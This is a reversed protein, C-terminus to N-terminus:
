NERCIRCIDAGFKEAKSPGIGSISELDDRTLPCEHAIARLTKDGLICFAPVNMQKALALRWARLSFLLQESAASLPARPAESNRSPATSQQTTRAARKRKKSRPAQRNNMVLHINELGDGLEGKMTLSVKRYPITRGEAEFEANELEVVGTRAMAALLDEFDNRSLQDRPFLEKHLKGTSKSASVKLAAIVSKMAAREEGTGDRTTRSVCDAPACFDCCGCSHRGDNTDGFHRVLASMRCQSSEAYKLVLEIQARRREAQASYSKRWGAHGASANDSYDLVSGGHIFLKEMAKSFVDPDMKLSERLDESQLPDRSLKGYIQDLVELRPYDREFFFDQTRRDSYSYMLITRSPQGDRGARGIEQYYSELSSPLATHIVTRVDAKDIGMGFAITAVVTELEGSLFKKQVTDRREPNLGAHYAAAPFSQSLEQALSEAQKRTPAYVIAHRRERNKLLTAVAETRLSPLVEIVEIALNDRRFGHIFRAANPMGLQEVIDNQVIPTATATLAIVPAPRLAPIHQGLTRYDPRFDHGWQSICHAEDIAILTPKRKALMEAFGPVRLREPAIFLFNLTGALYDICARRSTSRDLGSHIRAVSFGLASLKSAQDEILAILPSVVLATGGRALAPLQYCLSKGAGTPMVLLADRGDIAAHCVAEQNARFARFGFASHLLDTLSGGRNKAALAAFSHAM